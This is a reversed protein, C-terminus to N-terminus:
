LRSLLSGCADELIDLVREFGAAGGYYPDPVEPVVERECYDVMRVLRAAGGSNLARAADFNDEDMTVIWDFRHFDDPVLRRATSELLYGRARAAEVMRGDPPHGVHYGHTGASDIEFEGARGADTVLKRFVGEAAPSRCINGLCVCLIDM